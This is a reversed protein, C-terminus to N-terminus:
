DELSTIALEVARLVGEIIGRAAGSLSGPLKFPNGLSRSINSDELLVKLNGVSEFAFMAAAIEDDELLGIEMFLQGSNLLSPCNVHFDEETEQSPVNKELDYELRSRVENFEALLGKRVLRRRLEIDREYAEIALSNQQESQERALSANQKLTLIVGGFGFFFGLVGVIASQFDVLFSYWTFTTQPDM